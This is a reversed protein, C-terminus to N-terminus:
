AHLEPRAPAPGTSTGITLEAELLVHPMQGDDSGEIRDILIRAVRRGAERVSCRVSTFVPIEADNRFYSLDDDFVVVSIDRGMELGADAIARRVGYGMIISSVLLATPPDPEKLMSSAAHHGFNETMEAAYMRAESVPVGYEAHADVFGRRRREAFDLAEPGNVLGIRRHGLDLLLTTARHFARRNNVDVFPYDSRTKSARGHVVFPLGIESLLAIRDDDVRPAHIVIGDVSGRAALTRYVREEESDTVVSLHLDYGEAGYVEGAGAIFDAFVPNIMEHTDSTTLVHGISMTRGTALRTARTSPMYNHQAAADLVRQRTRESVEPYGNLARSVTTQSLGLTRSLEKLNM